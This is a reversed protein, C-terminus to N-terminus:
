HILGEEKLAELLDEESYTGTLRRKVEHTPSILYTTPSITLHFAKFTAQDRYDEYVIWSVQLDKRKEKLTNVIDAVIKCNACLGTGMVVVAPKGSTLVEKIQQNIGPTSPDIIEIPTATKFCGVLWISCLLGVLLVISIKKM